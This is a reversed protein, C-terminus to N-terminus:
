GNLETSSATPLTVPSLISPAVTTAYLEAGLPLEAAARFRQGWLPRASHEDSKASPLAM